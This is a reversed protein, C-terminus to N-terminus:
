ERGEGDDRVDSLLWAAANLVAALGYCGLAVAVWDPLGFVLAVPGGPTRYWPISAVYLLAILVLLLGRASM